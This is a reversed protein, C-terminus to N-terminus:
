GPTSAPARSPSPLSESRPQPLPAPAASPRLPLPTSPCPTVGQSPPLAIVPLAIVHRAPVHRASTRPGAIMRSGSVAVILGLLALLPTRAGSSQAKLLLGGVYPLHGFVKPVTPGELVAQWNDPSPNADGKTTVVSGRVTVVRHTYRASEGPPTFLIVDGPSVDRVDIPRTLVLAGPDFTGRMSGTLITQTSVQLAVVAYAGVLLVVAGVALALTFLSALVRSVVEGLGSLARSPNHTAAAHRGKETMTLADAALGCRGM